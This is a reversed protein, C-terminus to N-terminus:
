RKGDSELCNILSELVKEDEHEILFKLIREALANRGMAFTISERISEAEEGEEGELEKLARELNARTQRIDEMIKMYYAAQRWDKLLKTARYYAKKDGPKKIRVVLGIREMFKLATSVHSLSYGTAEAIEGLSMPERALFLVGYIYGYLENFGFRRAAQAFHNVIIRKAEDVGM